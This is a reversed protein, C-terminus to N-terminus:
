GTADSEDRARVLRRRLVSLLTDGPAVDTAVLNSDHLRRVTVLEPHLVFPYGADHLRMLLETDEAIRIDESYGGVELARDRDILMTCMATPEVDVYRRLVHAPPTTGAVVEIKAMSLVVGAQPDSRLSAVQRTLRDPLMLDDSDHNAVLRHRAARLGVNRAAGPGANAQHIARIRDDAAALRDALESTGDTSGDDVIVLEFPHGQALVSEVADALMAVRDFVPIMVTVPEDPAWRSM